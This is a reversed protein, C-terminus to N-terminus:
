SSSKMIQINCERSQEELIRMNGRKSKMETIKQELEQPFKKLKM